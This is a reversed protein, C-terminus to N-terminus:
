VLTTTFVSFCVKSSYLFTDDVYLFNLYQWEYGMYHEEINALVNCFMKLYGNAKYIDELPQINYTYWFLVVSYSITQRM